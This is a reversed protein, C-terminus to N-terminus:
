DVLLCIIWIFSLSFGILCSRLGSVWLGLLVGVAPHVSDYVRTLFSCLKRQIHGIWIIHNVLSCIWIVVVKEIYSFWIPMSEYGWGWYFVLFCVVYCRISKRMRRKKMWIILKKLLSKLSEGIGLRIEQNHLLYGKNM